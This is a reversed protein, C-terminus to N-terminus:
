LVLDPRPDLTVVEFAVSSRHELDRGRCCAVSEEGMRPAVGELAAM